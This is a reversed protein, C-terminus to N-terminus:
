MIFAQDQEIKTYWWKLDYWHISNQNLGTSLKLKVPKKLSGYNFSLLSNTFYYITGVRRIYSIYPTEYWEDYTFTKQDQIIDNYIIYCTIHDNDPDDYCTRFIIPKSDGELFIYTDTAKFGSPFASSLWGMKFEWDENAINAFEREGYGGSVGDGTRLCDEGVYIVWASNVLTWLNKNGWGELIWDTM